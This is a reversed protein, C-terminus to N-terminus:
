LIAKTLINVTVFAPASLCLEFRDYLTVEPVGLQFIYSRYILSMKLTEILLLEEKDM